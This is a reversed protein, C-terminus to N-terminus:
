LTKIGRIPNCCSNCNKKKRQNPNPNRQYRNLGVYVPGDCTECKQELLFKRGEGYDSCFTGAPPGDPRRLPKGEANHTRYNSKM